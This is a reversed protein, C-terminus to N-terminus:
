EQKEGNKRKKGDSKRKILAAATVAGAAAAATGAIIAAAPFEKEKGDDGTKETAPETIKGTKNVETDQAATEDDPEDKPETMDKYAANLAKLADNVETQTVSDARSVTNAADGLAVLFDRYAGGSYKGSSNTTKKYTTYAETLEKVDAKEPADKTKGNAYLKIEAITKVTSKASAGMIIIKVYRYRGGIPESIVKGNEDSFVNKGNLKSSTVITWNEKDDSGEIRYDFLESNKGPVIEVGYVDKSEYLDMIVTQTSESAFPKWETDPDGDTLNKATDKGKGAASYIYGGTCEVGPTQIEGEFEVRQKKVGTLCAEAEIVAAWNATVMKFTFRMYRCEYVEGLSVEFVSGGPIPAEKVGEHVTQWTKGDKSIEVTYTTSGTRHYLQIMFRDFRKVSGLDFEIWQPFSSDSACWWTGGNEDIAKDPSSDSASVSSATATAGTLINVEYEAPDFDRRAETEYAGLDTRSTILLAWDSTDPKDPIVYKGDEHPIDDSIDIFKGTLVDYWKASYKEAENLRKVTGTTQDNNYFYAVYTKNDDSSALVKTEEKFNSYMTNAYRPVLKSFDVYKFFDALYTMEYSGPKGLGMYWPETSFTGLWGTSGATSWCNAWVGTVGYTFGCSGCLNSKWAAIRSADYGNFGGCYIDEYNAESEIFPKPTEKNRKNVWYGQYTNKYPIIPGHGNQLTYFVHWSEADLKKVYENLVDAPYQHASQPHDYGDGQDTIRASSVWADFQAEGTIEQATIWVVPYAAYRATLYRSLRDLAEKGMNKVTNDHVGFGLAIVMGKAALYDFMVDYKKSFTKPNIKTYKTSWMSPESTVSLQGGGDAEASDFYTQYVTFGKDVRDNVEHFFQSGCQCGPYNCKSISVYNPAQWNTDGLWYFPTGDDYVFYRGNDSIKVFGHRDLETTGKNAVARISGTKNHLGTNETDSCTIVYTWVGTKTPSFRVRWESGGNWFGFLAIKTGDEHTFVADIDVDTYPNKYTKESTLIVDTRTWLEVKPLGTQSAAAPTYGSAAMCLGLMVSLIRIAKRKM